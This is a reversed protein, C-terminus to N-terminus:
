PAEGVLFPILLQDFALTLVDDAAPPAARSGFPESVLRNGEAVLALLPSGAVLLRPDAPIDGSTEFIAVLRGDVSSLGLYRVTGGAVPVTEGVVHDIPHLPDPIAQAVSGSPGGPAEANQSPSSGVEGASRLGSIFSCGALAVLLLALTARAPHTRPPPRM